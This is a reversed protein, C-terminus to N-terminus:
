LAVMDVIRGEDCYVIYYVLMLLVLRCVKVIQRLMDLRTLQYRCQNTSQQINKGGILSHIKQWHPPPPNGGMCCFCESINSKSGYKACVEEGFWM